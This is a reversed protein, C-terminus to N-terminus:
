AEPYDVSFYQQLRYEVNHTAYFLAQVRVQTPTSYVGDVRTMSM